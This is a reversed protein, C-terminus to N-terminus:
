SNEDNIEAILSDLKEDTPPEKEPADAIAKAKHLAKIKEVYAFFDEPTKAQVFNVKSM